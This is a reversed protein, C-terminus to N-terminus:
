SEGAGIRAGDYIKRAMERFAVERLEPNNMLRSTIERNRDMRDIVLDLLREKIALAFNDFANAEAKEVIDADAKASETVQDTLTGDNTIKAVREGDLQTFWVAGDPATAMHWPNATPTPLQFEEITQAAGLPAISLLVAAIWKKM